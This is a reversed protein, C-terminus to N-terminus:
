AATRSLMRAAPVILFRVLPITALGLALGFLGDLGATVLWDVVAGAGGILRASAAALDHIHHGIASLELVEFGHIVISGGVWLMAATGIASIVALMWPMAKVIAVGILRTLAWRGIQAMRLGLDDAKVLVAVSGYVLATIGIGVLALAFGTVWLSDSTIQALAITMIEASLIFDTKIAGAVRDAELHAADLSEPAPGHHVEPRILHLIKEAGEFCLYTGGLM